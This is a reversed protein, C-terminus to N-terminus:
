RCLKQSVFGLLQEATASVPARKIVISMTWFNTAPATGRECLPPDGDLVIHGRGLCVKTGLPIKIWGATQSCCVHASFHLLATGRELPPAPDADLVNDGPGIGVKTCTVNQDM